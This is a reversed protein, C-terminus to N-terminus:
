KDKAEEDKSEPIILSGKIEAICDGVFDADFMTNYELVKFLYDIRKMMNEDALEQIQARLRKIYSQMQQNQESLEACAHNLQDYTLKQPAGEPANNMPITKGQEKNEEM